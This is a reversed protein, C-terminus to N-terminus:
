VEISTIKRILLFGIVDLIIVSILIIAGYFTNFLLMVMSADIFFLMFMLAFPASALVYAQMKGEATLTAIRRELSFRQQITKMAKECIDPIGRGMRSVTNVSAVFLRLDELPIRRLLGELAREQSQGLSIEKLVLRFEGSIPDKTEETMLKISEQFSLGSKMSNSLIALGDIMQQHFKRLRNNYARRVMIDPLFFAPIAFSLIPLLVQISGGLNPFVLFGLFGFFVASSFKLSLIWSTPM